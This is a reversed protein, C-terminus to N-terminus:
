INQRVLFVQVVQLVGGLPEAAFALIIALLGYLVSFLRTIWTKGLESLGPYFPSIFDEFTVGAMSNLGSSVTSLTASFLCAVFLGPLGKFDSLVELMFHIVLQDRHRVRTGLQIPDCDSYYSFMVLGLFFVMFFLISIAPISLLVVVQARRFTPLSCYRQLAVQNAGFSGLWYFFGGFIATWVTMYQFPDPSLNTLGALRGSMQATQWVREVGGADITAKILLTICGGYM